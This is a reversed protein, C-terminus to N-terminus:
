PVVTATKAVIYTSVILCIVAYVALGLRAGFLVTVLMALTAPGALRHQQAPFHVLQHDHEGVRGDLVRCSGLRQLLLLGM